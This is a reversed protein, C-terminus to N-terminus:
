SKIEMKYFSIALMSLSVTLAIGSLVGFIFTQLDTM